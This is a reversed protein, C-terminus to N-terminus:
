WGGRTDSDIIYLPRKKAENFTRALYLGIIGLNAIIVGGMFFISLIISTWGRYSTYGSAWLAVVVISILITLSSIIFGLYISAKLPMDSYAVVIESAAHLLKRFTYCSKGAFRDNRNIPIQTREFGMLNIIGGLFRLREQHLCFGNAVKRSIIRFNGVESDFKTGSMFSLIKWFIISKIRGFFNRNVFKAEVIDYGEQAKDYLAKIEEPPDQLDCDMIVLWDGKSAEIGATIAVHQGMNKSLRLGVVRPDDDCIKQIIKWSDDYGRDEVLIIEYDNTIEKVSATIRKYLETICEQANYVPSIISLHQM